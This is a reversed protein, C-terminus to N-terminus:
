TGNAHMLEILEVSSVHGVRMEAASASIPSAPLESITSKRSIKALKAGPRKSPRVASFKMAVTCAVPGLGHQFTLLLADQAERYFALRM